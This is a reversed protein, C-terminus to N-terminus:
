SGCGAELYRFPGIDDDVYEWVEVALGEFYAASVVIEMRGDGSLDAVAGISFGVIFSGEPDTIVTDGLVATAVEGEIVKRMFLISYDGTEALYGGRIEEAVVLVENTGDGELDTRFLQKIVPDAVNLGRDALLGAAIASYTGDDDFSEFLHPHIDWPASIAVGYPGPWQGLLQDSELVVGINDLPECVLTQPGATTTAEFGIGAIQYDEGGLVPLEGADEASVWDSGDWWGLAGFGTVVLPQDAWNGTSEVTTTTEVTSTTSTAM